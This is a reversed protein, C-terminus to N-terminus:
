ILVTQECDLQIEVELVIMEIFSNVAHLHFLSPIKLYKCWGLRSACPLLQPRHPRRQRGVPQPERVAPRVLPSVHDAARQHVLHHFHISDAAAGSNLHAILPQFRGAQLGASYTACACVTANPHPPLSTPPDQSAGLHQSPERVCLVCNLCYGHM